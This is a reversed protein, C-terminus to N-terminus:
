GRFLQCNTQQSVRISFTRHYFLSTIFLSIARCPIRNNVKLRINSATFCTLSAGINNIGGDIGGGGTQKEVAKLIIRITIDSINVIAKKQIHRFYLNAFRKFPHSLFTAYEIIKRRKTKINHNIGGIGAAGTQKKVVIPIIARRVDRANM